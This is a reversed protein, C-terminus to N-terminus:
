SGTIHKANILYYETMKIEMKIGLLSFEDM